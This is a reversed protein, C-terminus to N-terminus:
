KERREKSGSNYTTGRYVGYSTHALNDLMQNYIVNRSEKGHWDWSRDKMEGDDFWEKCRHCFAKGADVDFAVFKHGFLRCWLKGKRKLNVTVVWKDSAEAYWKKVEDCEVDEKM